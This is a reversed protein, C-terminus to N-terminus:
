KQGIIKITGENKEHNGIKNIEQLSPSIIQSSHAPIYLPGSQGCSSTFLMFAPVVFFLLTCKM